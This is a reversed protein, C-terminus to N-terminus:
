EASKMRELAKEELPLVGRGLFYETVHRPLEELLGNILESISSCEDYLVFDINDRKQYLYDGTNSQKVALMKRDGDLRRLRPFAANFDTLHEQGPPAGDAEKKKAGYVRKGSPKALAVFMVSVPLGSSRVLSKKLRKYDEQTADSQVFFVLVHYTNCYQNVDAHAKSTGQM